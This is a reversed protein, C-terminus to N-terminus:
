RSAARAADRELASMEDALRALTEPSLLEQAPRFLDDEEDGFHGQLIWDLRAVADRLTAVVDATAGADPADGADRLVDGIAAREDGLADHHAALAATARALLARRERIRDHQVVLEDVTRRTDRALARLAPFLVQEEKAIHLTLDRSLFADLGRVADLMQAFREHDGPHASAHEVAARAEGVVEAALEHERVLAALPEALIELPNGGTM